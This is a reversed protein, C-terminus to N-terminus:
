SLQQIAYSVVEDSSSQNAKSWLSKALNKVDMGDCYDVDVSKSSIGSGHIDRTQDTFTTGEERRSRVIDSKLKNSLDILNEKESCIIKLESSLDQCLCELKRVKNESLILKQRISRIM